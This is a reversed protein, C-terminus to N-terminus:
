MRNPASIGLITLGNRLVVQAARALVLRANRLPEAEGLVHHTHYWTHVLRATDLLYQTVRHPEMADAASAVVGPFDSLAKILEREGPATLVDLAVGSPDLREADIEGVRFIGCMRAHAMQVYYVPNEESQSRALDVDFELHSDGKRMLFFWRVADRGVDDILDRVTVYSGARKSIKVEEGGKVVTVMQHLVYEPYGQPIGMELAQLGVRVRTVTSHHDAGQVNIARHFGRRWKTVHYAVDPVFYTPEGGKEESRRMVRDKDDGFDTTKLWLAGDREYTHGAQRLMEITSDVHGETYLSSELSYVDFAV